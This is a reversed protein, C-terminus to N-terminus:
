MVDDFHSDLNYSRVVWSSHVWDYTSAKEMSRLLWWAAKQAMPLNARIKEEMEAENSEFLLASFHDRPLCKRNSDSNSSSFFFMFM